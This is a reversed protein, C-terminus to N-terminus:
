ARTSRRRERPDGPIGLDDPRGNAVMAHGLVFGAADPCLWVEVVVDLELM